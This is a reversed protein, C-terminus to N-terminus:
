SCIQMVDWQFISSWYIIIKHKLQQTFHKRICNIVHFREILASAPSVYFKNPTDLISFKMIQHTFKCWKISSEAVYGDVPPNQYSRLSANFVLSFLIDPLDKKEGREKKTVSDTDGLATCSRISKSGKGTCTSTFKSEASEWSETAFAYVQKTPKQLM